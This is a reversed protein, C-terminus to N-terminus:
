VYWENLILFFEENEECVTNISKMRSDSYVVMKGFSM